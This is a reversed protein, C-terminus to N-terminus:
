PLSEMFRRYRADLEQYGTGTAEALSQESDRGSYVEDLYRVLAERYRSQEGDMLFAALGTSQSYLKAIEPHQQVDAKGLRTLDALPMYFGSALRQRAAPLRGRTSAGITFYLGAVPDTHETLTEFYTAVGEIVWFNALSGIRKASPKSEQFLQHVAEHYLTGADQDEGAFFHAERDADFYIGLTESIRPQRRRLAAIYQDRDKHYYVRFPRLLKRPLRDGAFLGRVEKDTLYFGAFLQRWVQHLRELRAAFDAAAELSHNTTVLFHDTRVQWGNKMESHRAADSETSIWRGGARRNGAAYQAVDEVAVWGFRPHWTKGTRAMQAGYRTLWRGDQQENGLVRRAGAHDPDERVAETTWQFALSLQRAEAARKALDFLRDAYKNRANRFQGEESGAPVYEDPAVFLLSGSTPPQPRWGPAAASFEDSLVRYETRLEAAMPRDAHATPACVAMSIFIAVLLRGRNM